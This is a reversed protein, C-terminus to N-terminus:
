RQDCANQGTEHAKGVASLVSGVRGFVMVASIAQDEASNAHDMAANALSVRANAVDRPRHADSIARTPPEPHGNTADLAGHAATL